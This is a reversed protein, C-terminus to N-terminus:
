LRIPWPIGCPRLRLSSHDKHEKGGIGSQYTAWANVTLRKRMGGRFEAAAPCRLAQGAAHDPFSEGSASDLDSSIVKYQDGVLQHPVRDLMHSCGEGDREVDVRPPQGHLDAITTAIGRPHLPPRARRAIVLAPPTKQQHIEKRAGPNNLAITIPLPDDRDEEMSRTVGLSPM